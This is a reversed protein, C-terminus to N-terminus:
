VSRLYDIKVGGAGDAQLPMKNTYGTTDIIALAVKGFGTKGAGNSQLVRNISQGTSDIGSPLTYGWVANGNGDAKLVKEVAVGTADIGNGEGSAAPMWVVKHVGAILAKTLVSNDPILDLGATGISFQKGPSQCLVGDPTLTVSTSGNSSVLLHSLNEVTESAKEVASDGGMAVAVPSGTSGSPTSTTRSPFRTSAKRNRTLSLLAQFDDLTLTPSPGFTITSRGSDLDLDVSTILANMTAWEARGSTLNLRNGVSPTLLSEETTTTISGEYQLVNVSEYFKQAMNTPIIEAAQVVGETTSTYTGSPCNTFSLKLVLQLGDVKKIEQARAPGEHLIYDLTWVYDHVAYTKNMWPQITGATLIYTYDPNLDQFTRITVDADRGNQECISDILPFHQRLFPISNLNGGTAISTIEQTVTTSSSIQGQLEVTSILSDISSVTGASQTTVTRKSSTVGDITVENNQEFNIQVGPVILDHRPTISIDTIDADILPLSVATLNARKRCHFVPNGTVSYEFWCVADPTWRAMRIIVEACSLDTQEDFPITIDPDITGLAIPAGKAIAWNIADAIQAGTTIAVGQNNQGLVVRSSPKSTEVGSEVLKWTQQYVCHELHWWPGSLTVSVAEQTGNAQRPLSTVRGYFVRATDKFVQVTSGYAFLDATLLDGPIDFTFTDVTQSHISRRLNTAGLDSASLTNLLWSM